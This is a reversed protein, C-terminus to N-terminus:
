KLKRQKLLKHRSKLWQSDRPKCHAKETPPKPPEVQPVRLMALNENMRLMNVTSVTSNAWASAIHGQDMVTYGTGLDVLLIVSESSTGPKSPDIAYLCKGDPSVQFEHTQKNEM